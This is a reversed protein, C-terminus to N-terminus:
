KLQNKQSLYQILSRTEKLEDYSQISSHFAKKFSIHEGVVKISFFSKKKKGVFKQYATFIETDNKELKDICAKFKKDKSLLAELYILFSSKGSGFPGTIAISNSTNTIFVRRLAQISSTSLIYSDCNTDYM